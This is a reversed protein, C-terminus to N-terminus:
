GTREVIVLTIDDTQPADGIFGEVDNFVADRVEAVSGVVRGKGALSVRVRTGHGLPTSLPGLPASADQAFAPAPAALCVAAAVAAGRSRLPGLPRGM